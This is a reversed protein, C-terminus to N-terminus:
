TALTWFEVLMHETVTQLIFSLFLKVLPLQLHKNQHVKFHLEM